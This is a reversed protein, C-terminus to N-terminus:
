SEEKEKKIVKKPKKVDVEKDKVEPSKETASKKNDSRVKRKRLHNAGSKNEKRSGRKNDVKEELITKGDKIKRIRYSKFSRKDVSELTFTVGEFEKSFDEMEYVLDVAGDKIVISNDNRKDEDFIRDYFFEKAFRVALEKSDKSDTHIKTFNKAVVEQEDSGYFDNKSVM